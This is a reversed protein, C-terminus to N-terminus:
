SPHHSGKSSTSGFISESDSAPRDYITEVFFEAMGVFEDSTPTSSSLRTMHREIVQAANRLGYPFAMSAGQTFVDPSLPEEGVLQMVINIFSFTLARLNERSPHPGLYVTLQHEM